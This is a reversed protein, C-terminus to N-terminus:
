LLLPSFHLANINREGHNRQGDIGAKAHTCSPPLCRSMLRQLKSQFREMPVVVSHGQLPLPRTLARWWALLLPVEAKRHLKKLLM